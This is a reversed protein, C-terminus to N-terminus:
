HWDTRRLTRLSSVRVRVPETRLLLAIWGFPVVLAFVTWFLNGSPDKRWYSLVSDILRRVWDELNEVAVTLSDDGTQGIPSPLLPSAVGSNTPPSPIDTIFSM